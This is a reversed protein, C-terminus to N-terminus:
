SANSKAAARALSGACRAASSWFASASISAEALAVKAQARAVRVSNSMPISPVALRDQFRTQEIELYRDLFDLEESLPVEQARSGDLTLRLLDSLRAVM